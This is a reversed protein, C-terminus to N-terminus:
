NNTSRSLETWYVDGRILTLTDLRGGQWNSAGALEASARTFTVTNDPHLNILTVIQYLEGDLLHTVSYDSAINEFVLVGPTGPDLDALSPTANGDAASM